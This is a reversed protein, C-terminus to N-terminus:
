NDSKNDKNNDVPYPKYLAVVFEVFYILFIIFLPVLTLCFSVTRNTLLKYACGLNYSSYVVKGIVNDQAVTYEDPTPNAAGKTTFTYRGDKVDIKYISHTNIQSAINPDTSIFSIVDGVQLTAPDVRKILVLSDTKIEPEMSGSVVNYIRYGFITNEPNKQM